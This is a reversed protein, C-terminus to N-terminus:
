PAIFPWASTEELELGELGLWSIALGGSRLEMAPGRPEEGIDSKGDHGGGNASLMPTSRDGVRGTYHLRTLIADHAQIGVASKFRPPPPGGHERAAARSAGEQLM